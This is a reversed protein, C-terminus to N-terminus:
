KFGLLESVTAFEYGRNKLEPIIIKLADATNKVEGIGYAYDHFDIISGNRTNQLVKKIIEDKSSKYDGAKVDALIIKKGLTRSEFDLILSRWLYPPRFLYTSVDYKALLKDNSSISSNIRQGREFNLKDHTFSHSGIENKSEVLKKFIDPNKEISEGTVFFTASVNEEELVNLIKKTESAPGDDFTLAIVPNDRSGHAFMNDSSYFFIIKIFLLIILIIFIPILIILKNVM